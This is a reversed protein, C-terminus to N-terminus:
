PRMSSNETFPQKKRVILTMQLKYNTYDFEKYNALFKIANHCRNYLNFQPLRNESM